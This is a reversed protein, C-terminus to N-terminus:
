APTRNVAFDDISMGVSGDIACGDFAFMKGVSRRIGALADCGGVAIPNIGKCAYKEMVCVPDREDYFRGAIFGQAEFLGEKRPGFEM